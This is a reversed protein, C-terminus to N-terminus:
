LFNHMGNCSIGADQNHDCNHTERDFKCETINSENGACQVNNLFIPGSGGDNSVNFVNAGESSLGLQRCVVQADLEDWMDRCITGYMNNFCIEVRGQLQMESELKLDGDQCAVFDISCYIIPSHALDHRYYNHM